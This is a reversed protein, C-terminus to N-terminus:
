SGAKFRAWLRTRARDAAQPSPGITFFRQMVADRPFVNPDDLLEPRVLVRTAPVANPYRTADTIRAMIDPRLVFNIFALADEKHPADSPIALMDFGIESGEKPVVYTVSVGRGAEKARMGAQDVDGSYDLALCAQGTALAELAGGSAFERIYPRIAMLANSVAELDAATAGDPSRGLYRLVSPIVDIASDMMIIGCPAVRKAWAPDLLLAWTDLPADSVLARIRDPNIGLGISGWLYIAGHRNGKDSSEIRQMLAPDLNKWNPVKTRDVIALAGARILRSFSPENSPLVIDYGSHGAFLKAELTELSDFVDYRTKIGTEKTFDALVTPDIYDTWNYINVVREQARASVALVIFALFWGAMLTIRSLLIFSDQLAFCTALGFRAPLAFRVM